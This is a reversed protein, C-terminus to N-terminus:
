NRKSRRPPGESGAFLKKAVPLCITDTPKRKRCERPTLREYVQKVSEHCSLCYCLKCGKKKISSTKISGRCVMAPNRANVMVQTPEEGAKPPLVKHGVFEIDCKECRAGDYKGGPKFCRSDPEQTFNLDVRAHYADDCVCAEQNAM